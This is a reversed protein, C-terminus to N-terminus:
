NKEYNLKRAKNNTKMMKNADDSFKDLNTLLQNKKKTKNDVSIFWKGISTNMFKDLEEQTKLQKTKFLPDCVIFKNEDYGSILIAHYAGPIEGAVIVLKGQELEKRILQSNIKIGNIVNTGTLKARNLIEKYESMAFQFDEKSLAGKNNNFLTLDEHYLTTDLGNKSFHFALASFPTGSMYKSGYIRYYRREDYWNAKKMIDFYELAMMMCVIACTDGRQKYPRVNKDMKINRESQLRELSEIIIEKNYEYIYGNNPLVRSENLYELIKKRLLFGSIGILNSAILKENLNDYIIIDRIAKRDPHELTFYFHKIKYEDSISYKKIDSLLQKPSIESDIYNKYRKTFRAEFIENDNAHYKNLLYKKFENSKSNDFKLLYIYYLHDIQYQAFYTEVPPTILLRSSEEKKMNEDTTSILGCKYDLYKKISGSMVLTAEDVVCSTTYIKILDEIEVPSLEINENRIIVSFAPELLDEYYSNHWSWRDILKRLFVEPRNMLEESMLQSINPNSEAYYRNANFLQQELIEDINKKMISPIIKSKINEM